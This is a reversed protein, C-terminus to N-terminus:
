GSRGPALREGVLQNPSQKGNRFSPSAAAFSAARAVSPQSANILSQPAGAALAPGSSLALGAVAAFVANKRNM